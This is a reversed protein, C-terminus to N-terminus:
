RALAAALQEDRSQESDVYTIWSAAASSSRDDEAALQFAIRASNYEKLEFLCAGLIMNAQDDRRLDGKELAERGAEVCEDWQALNQHSQALRVNLEGDEVLAAARRLPEIAKQDEQSLQWAQALTRWNPETSEISGDALGAELIKAAKVPAEAGLLLQAMQVKENSQELWGAEYALEYLAIQAQLNEESGYMASLQIFYEEKPWSEVMTRLVEIVNPYDELEYYFVNLLRYWNEELEEGRAEALELATLVPEIGEQYQQMSYYLQARLIYPDPGPDVAIDFWLALMDLSEQYREQQFYLQTLTFRTTTDMGLPLDPQELVMEYARIAGDYDDQAFYIFAYFNWMQAIEYSNLGRMNRVRELLEVACEMDPPELVEETEEDITGEACEQADALRQYVQERMAPTRRRTEPREEANEAGSEQAFAAPTLFLSSILVAAAPILVLRVGRM